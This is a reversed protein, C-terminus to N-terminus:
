LSRSSHRILSLGREQHAQLWEQPTFVHPESVDYTMVSRRPTTQKEYRHIFNEYELVQDAITFTEPGKEEYAAMALDFAAKFEEKTEFNLPIAQTASFTYGDGITFEIIIM